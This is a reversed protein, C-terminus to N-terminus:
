RSVLIHDFCRFPSHPKDFTTGKRSVNNLHGFDGSDHNPPREKCMCTREFWRFGADVHLAWGGEEDQHPWNSMAEDHLMELKEDESYNKPDKAPKYHRIQNDQIFIKQWMKETTENYIHYHEEPLCMGQFCIFDQKWGPRLKARAVRRVSDIIQDLIEQPLRSLTCDRFRHCLRLTTVESTTDRVAQLTAGLKGMDVPVAWALRPVGRPLPEEPGESDYPPYNLFCM